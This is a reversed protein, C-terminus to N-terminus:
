KQSFLSVVAFVWTLVTMWALASQLLVASAQSPAANRYIRGSLLGATFKDMFLFRGGLYHFFSPNGVRAWFDKSFRSSSLMWTLHVTALASVFILSFFFTEFRM